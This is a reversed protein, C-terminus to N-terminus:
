ENFIKGNELFMEEELMEEALSKFNEYDILECGYKELEKNMKVIKNKLQEERKEGLYEYDQYELIFTYANYYNGRHKIRINKGYYKFEFEIMAGSGQCYSLDYYIDILKASKGFYKKLLEEAYYSLDDKLYYECYDNQCVNIQNELLRGKLNEDLENFEYVKFTKTVEKM